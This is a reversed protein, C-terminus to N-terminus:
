LIDHITVSIVTTSSIYDKHKDISELANEYKSYNAQYNENSNLKINEWKNKLNHFYQPIFFTKGNEYTTELIRYKM